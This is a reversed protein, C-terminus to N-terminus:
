NPRYVQVGLQINQDLILFDSGDVVGDGNLDTVYYGQDGAQISVDLDLFDSGDIVMDQNIDGSFMAFVPTGNIVDVQAQNDGYANNAATQANVRFTLFLLLILSCYITKKM